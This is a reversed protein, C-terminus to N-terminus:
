IGPMTGARYIVQGVVHFRQARDVPVVRDPYSANQSHLRIDGGPEKFLQKILSEGEFLVAYVGGDLITTKSCDVVVVDGHFLVPEMSRGRVDFLKCDAASSNTRELVAVDLPFVKRERLEWEIKRSEESFRANYRDLLLREFDDPAATASDYAVVKGVASMPTDPDPEPAELDGFILTPSPVDVALSIADLERPRKSKGQEISNIYQQSIPKRAIDSAAAALQAQSLGLAERALRLNKALTM